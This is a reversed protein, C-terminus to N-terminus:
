REVVIRRLERQRTCVERGVTVLAVRASDVASQSSEAKIAVQSIVVRRCVRIVLCVLIRGRAIITVRSGIPAGRKIVVREERYRRTIMSIHPVRTQFAMACGTVERQEAARMTVFM